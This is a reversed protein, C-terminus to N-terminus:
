IYFESEATIIISKECYNVNEKFFLLDLEDWLLINKKNSFM